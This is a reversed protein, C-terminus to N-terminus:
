WGSGTAIGWGNTAPLPQATVGGIASNAQAQPNTTATPDPMGTSTTPNTQLGPPTLSSYTVSQIIRVEEFACNVMIMGAGHSAERRLDYAVLNMNTWTNEPLVITYLNTDHCMQDITALFAKRNYISGGSVMRVTVRNPAKVKNYTAFSGQEIPADCLMNPVVAEVGYVSDPFVAQNGYADFIGWQTLLGSFLGSTFPAAIALAGNLIPNQLLPAGFLSM